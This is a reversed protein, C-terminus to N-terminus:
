IHIGNPHGYIKIIAVEIIPMCWREIEHRLIYVDFYTAWSFFGSNSRNLTILHNEEKKRFTGVVKVTAYIILPLPKLLCIEGYSFTPFCPKAGKTYASYHGDFIQGGKDFGLYAVTTSEGIRMKSINSGRQSQVHIYTGRQGYRLAHVSLKFLYPSGKLIETGIFDFLLKNCSFILSIM